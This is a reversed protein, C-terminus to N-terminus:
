TLACNLRGYSKYFSKKIHRHTQHRGHEAQHEQLQAAKAVVANDVVTIREARKRQEKSSPQRPEKLGQLEPVLTPLLRVSLPVCLSLSLPIDILHLSSMNEMALM